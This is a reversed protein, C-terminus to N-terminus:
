QLAENMRRLRDAMARMVHVAFFPTSQILLLFRRQDIPVVRADTKAVADASRATRGLLAMEGFIGGPGVIELPKGGAKLEIEGDTVVFMVEGRAGTM